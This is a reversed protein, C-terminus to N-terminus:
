IKYTSNSNIFQKAKDSCKLANRNAYIYNLIVCYSYNKHLYIDINCWMKNYPYIYIKCGKKNNRIFFSLYQKTCVTNRNIFSYKYM